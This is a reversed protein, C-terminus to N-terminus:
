KILFILIEIPELLGLTEDLSAGASFRLIRNTTAYRPGGAVIFVPGSLLKEKQSPLLALTISLMLGDSIDLSESVDVKACWVYL